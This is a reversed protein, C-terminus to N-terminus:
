SPRHAQALWRRADDPSLPKTVYGRVSAYALARRRDEALPSSSLMVLLSRARHAPPMREYAEIFDFGDMRPMNIDLFIMDPLLVADSALAALADEASEFSIVASQPDTQEIVIRAYLLDTESDDVLWVTARESGDSSSM